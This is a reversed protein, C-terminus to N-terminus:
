FHPIHSPLPFLSMKIKPHAEPLRLFESILCSIIEMKRPFHFLFRLNCLTARLNFMCFCFSDSLRFELSTTGSVVHDQDIRNRLRLQRMQLIPLTAKRPTTKVQYSSSLSRENTSGPGPGRLGRSSSQFALACPM